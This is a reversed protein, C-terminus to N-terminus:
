LIEFGLKEARKLVLDPMIMDYHYMNYCDAKVVYNNSGDVEGEKLFRAKEYFEHKKMFGCLYVERSSYYARAFAYVDCEQTTNFNAVSAEYDMQPVVTTKKTKVDIRLDKYMIDFDYTDIIEGNLLDNVAYEGLFGWYNGKGDEISNKLVGMAEERELAADKMWQHVPIKIISMNNGKFSIGHFHFMSIYHLIMM